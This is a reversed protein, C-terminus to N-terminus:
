NGCDAITRCFVLIRGADHLATSVYLILSKFLEDYTLTSYYKIAYLKVNTRDPSQIIEKM